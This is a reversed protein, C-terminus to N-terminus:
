FIIALLAGSLSGSCQVNMIEKKCVLDLFSIPDDFMTWGIFHDAIIV